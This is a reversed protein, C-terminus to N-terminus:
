GKIGYLAVQTYTGFSETSYCTLTISTVAATSSWLGSQLEVYGASTPAGTNGNFDAGMIGRTVKYKNTNTYDLITTVGVGMLASNASGGTYYGFTLGKQNSTAANGGSYASPTVGGGGLYHTYYNSAYNTDSNFYGSFGGPGYNGSNSRAIARVELHKYTQPISSFTITSQTGSAVTVTAISYYSSANLYPTASSAYIGLIPSM